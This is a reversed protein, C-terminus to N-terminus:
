NRKRVNNSFTDMKVRVEGALSWAVITRHREIAELRQRERLESLEWLYSPYPPNAINRDDDFDRDNGVDVDDRTRFPLVFYHINGFAQYLIEQPYFWNFVGVPPLRLSPDHTTLTIQYGHCIPENATLPPVGYLNLPVNAFSSSM